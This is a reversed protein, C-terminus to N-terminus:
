RKSESAPAILFRRLFAALRNVIVRHAEGARLTAGVGVLQSPMLFPADSFSM